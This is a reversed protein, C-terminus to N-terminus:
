SAPGWLAVPMRPRAQPVGEAVWSARLEGPVAWVREARQSEGLARSQFSLRQGGTEEAKPAGM